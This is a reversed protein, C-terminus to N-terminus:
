RVVSPDDIREPGQWLGLRRSLVLSIVASAIFGVGISVGIMGLAALEQASEKEFRGSVFLMGISAAAIIVGIQISWLVRHASANQPRSDAHLPIPASELFKTGAPTRIYTLLEESSSFRDLIKNHVESQTRSLHSWRKQEILTRVIWALAFAILIFVAFITMSELVNETITREHGLGYEGLYFGPSHRVEPHKAVFDRVEPYKALFADDSLLTPDLQLITAVEPPRQRLLLNFDNRIDNSSVSQAADPDTTTSTTATTTTATTATEEQAFLPAALGALLALILVSRTLNGM